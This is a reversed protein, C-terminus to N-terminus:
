ATFLKPISGVRYVTDAGVRAASGASVNWNGPGHATLPCCRCPCGGHRQRAPQGVAVHRHPVAGRKRGGVRRAASGDFCYDAGM